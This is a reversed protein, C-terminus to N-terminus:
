CLRVGCAADPNVNGGVIHEIEAGLLNAAERKEKAYSPRSHVM